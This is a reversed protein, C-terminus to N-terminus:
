IIFDLCIELDFNKIKTALTDVSRFLQSGKYMYMSNQLVWHGQLDDNNHLTYMCLM